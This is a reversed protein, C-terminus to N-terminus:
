PSIATYTIHFDDPPLAVVPLGGAAPMLFDAGITPGAGGSGSNDLSVLVKTVPGNAGGLADMIAEVFDSNSIGTVAPTATSLRYGGVPAALLLGTLASSALSPATGSASAAGYITIATVPQIIGCNQPSGSAIFVCQPARTATTNGTGRGGIYNGIANLAGLSVPAFSGFVYLQVGGLGDAVAKAYRVENSAAFCWNEWTGAPSGTGLSTWQNYCRSILSSDSEIDAGAQGSQYWQYVSPPDYPASPYTTVTLGAPGTTITLSTGNAINFASGSGTATFFGQVNGSQVPTITAENTFSHGLSDVVVLGGAPIPSTSASATAAVNMMGITPQPPQRYQNFWQQAGLDVWPSTGIQAPTPANAATYQLNASAALAFYGGSGMDVLAQNLSALSAAESNVFYPGMSTAGWSSAPLGPLALGNYVQPAALSAQLSAVYQAQSQQNLLTGLPPIALYPAPM